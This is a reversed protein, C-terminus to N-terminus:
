EAAPPETPASAIDDCFTIINRDAVGWRYARVLGTLLVHDTDELVLVDEARELADLIRMQKRVQDLDAGGQPAARAIDRITDRYNLSAGKALEEELAQGSIQGRAILDRIDSRAGLTKLTIYKM